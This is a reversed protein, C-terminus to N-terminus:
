LKNGAGGRKECAAVDKMAESQWPMWRIRKNAQGYLELVGELRLSGCYRQAVLCKVDGLQRLSVNQYETELGFRKNVDWTKLSCLM